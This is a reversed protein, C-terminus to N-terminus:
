PCKPCYVQSQDQHTRSTVQNVKMVSKDLMIGFGDVYAELCRELHAVNRNGKKKELDTM